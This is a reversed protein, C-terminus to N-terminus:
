AVNDILSFIILLRLFHMLAVIESLFIAGHVTIVCHKEYVTVM